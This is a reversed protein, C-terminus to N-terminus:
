LCYKRLLNEYFSVAKEAEDLNLVENPQYLNGVGQGPGLLICEVGLRSLVNAETCLTTKYLQQDM